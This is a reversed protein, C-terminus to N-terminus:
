PPFNKSRIVDTRACEASEIILPKNFTSIGFGLWTGFATGALFMTMALRLPLLSRYYKIVHANHNM